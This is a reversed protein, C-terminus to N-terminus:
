DRLNVGLQQWWAENASQELDGRRSLTFENILTHTIFVLFVSVVVVFWGFTSGPDDIVTAISGMGVPLTLLIGATMALRLRKTAKSYRIM